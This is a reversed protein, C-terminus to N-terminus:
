VWGSRQSCTSSYRFILNLSLTATYHQVRSALSVCSCSLNKLLLIVHHSYHKFFVLRTAPHWTPPSPVPSSALLFHQPTLHYFFETLLIHPLFSTQLIFFPVDSIVKPTPDKTTPSDTTGLTPNPQTPLFSPVFPDM